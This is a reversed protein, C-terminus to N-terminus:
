LQEEDSNQRNLRMRTEVAAALQRFNAEVRVMKNKCCKIAIFVVCILAFLSFAVILATEPSNQLQVIQLGDAALSCESDLRFSAVPLHSACITWPPFFFIILPKCCFVEM